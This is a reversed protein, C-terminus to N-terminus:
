KGGFPKPAPMGGKFGGRPKVPPPPFKGPSPAAPITKQVGKPPAVAKPKAGIRGPPAQVIGPAVAQAMMNAIPNKAM